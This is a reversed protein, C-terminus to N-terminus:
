QWWSASIHITTVHVICQILIAYNPAVLKGHLSKLRYKLPEEETETELQSM